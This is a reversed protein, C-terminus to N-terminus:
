RRGSAKPREARRDRDSDKSFRRTRRPSGPRGSLCAPARTVSDLHQGPTQREARIVSPSHHVSKTGTAALTALATSSLSSSGARPDRHPVDFVSAPLQVELKALTVLKDAERARHRAPPLAPRLGSSLAQLEVVIRHCGNTVVGLPLAVKLQVLGDGVSHFCRRPGQRGLSCPPHPM